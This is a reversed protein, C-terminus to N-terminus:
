VSLSALRRAIHGDTLAEYKLRAESQLDFEHQESAGPVGEPTMDIVVFRAFGAHPEVMYLAVSWDTGQATMLHTFPARRLGPKTM